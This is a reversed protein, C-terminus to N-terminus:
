SATSVIITGDELKNQYELKIEESLGLAKLIQEKIDM